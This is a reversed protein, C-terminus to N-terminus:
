MVACGARRPVASPHQHLANQIRVDDRIAYITALDTPHNPKRFLTNPHGDFYWGVQWLGDNDSTIRVDTVAHLEMLREHLLHMLTPYRVPGRVPTDCQCATPVVIPKLRPAPGMAQEIATQLTRNPILACSAMPARTIPSTANVRLWAEIASREYSYGDAAVVPDCMRECTIPCRWVAEPDM